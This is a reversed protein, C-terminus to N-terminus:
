IFTYFWMLSIRNYTHIDALKCCSLASWEILYWFRFQKYCCFICFLGTHDFLLSQFQIQPVVSISNVLFFFHRQKKPRKLAVPNKKRKNKQFALICTQNWNTRTLSLPLLLNRHNWPWLPCHQEDPIFFDLCVSRGQSYDAKWCSFAMTVLVRTVMSLVHFMSTEWHLWLTSHAYSSSVSYVLSILFQSLTTPM